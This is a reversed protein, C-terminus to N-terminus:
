EESNDGSAVSADDTQRDTQRKMHREMIAPGFLKWQQRWPQSTAYWEISETGEAILTRVISDIYDLFMVSSDGKYRKILLKDEWMRYTEHNFHECVLRQADFISIRTSTREDFEAVRTDDKKVYQKLAAKNRAIEIHARPFVKKIASFRVQPTTLMGQFHTTGNEGQEFQGELKWLAPLDCKTDDDTPNNITISWCTARKSTDM